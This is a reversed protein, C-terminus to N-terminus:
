GGIVRALATAIGTGAGCALLVSVVIKTVLKRQSEMEAELKDLRRGHVDCRGGKGDEGAITILRRANGEALTKVSLVAENTRDHRRQCEGRAIGIEARVIEMDESM